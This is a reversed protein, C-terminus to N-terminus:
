SGLAIPYLILLRVECLLWRGGDQGAGLPLRRLWTRDLSVTADWASLGLDDDLLAEAIARGADAAADWDDWWRAPRTEFLYRVRVLQRGLPERDVDLNVSGVGEIQEEDLVAFSLHALSDAEYQPLLPYEAESWADRASHGYGESTDTTYGDSVVLGLIRDRIGRRVDRPRAPMM